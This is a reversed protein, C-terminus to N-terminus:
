TDPNERVDHWAFIGGNAVTDDPIFADLFFHALGSGHSYWQDAIGGSFDRFLRFEFYVVPDFPRHPRGMLWREWDTDEERIRTINPHRPVHWRPGNYNWSQEIATIKGLKGSRVVERAALHYPCSVWQSGMQVIRDSARVADRALKADALTNAMPKECYADKGARVAQALLRAHQHDATAIMVADLDPDALMDEAYQF